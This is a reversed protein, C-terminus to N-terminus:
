DRVSHVCSFRTGVLLPRHAHGHGNVVSAGPWNTLRRAGHKPLIRQRLQKPMDHPLAPVLDRHALLLEADPLGDAPPLIALPGPANTESQHRKAELRPVDHRDDGVVARLPEVGVHAHQRHPRHGVADVRRVRRALHLVDDVVARRAEKERLVLLLEVLDEFHAGLAGLEHLDEDVVDLPQVAEAIRLHHREVLQQLHAGAVIALM